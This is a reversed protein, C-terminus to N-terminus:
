LLYTKKSQNMNGGSPQNQHGQFPPEANPMQQTPPGHQMHPQPTPPPLIGPVADAISALYVLNRHLIQQYRTFSM